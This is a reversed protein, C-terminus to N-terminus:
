VVRGEVLPMLGPLEAIFEALSVFTDHADRIVKLWFCLECRRPCHRDRVEAIRSEAYQPAVKWLTRAQLSGLEGSCAGVEVDCGVEGILAGCLCLDTM